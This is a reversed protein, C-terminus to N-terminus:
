LELEKQLEGVRKLADELREYQYREKESIDEKEKKLSNIEKRLQSCEYDAQRKEKQLSEM